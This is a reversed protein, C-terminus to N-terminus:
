RKYRRNLADLERILSGIFKTQRGPTNKMTQIGSHVAEVAEELDDNVIMLDYHEIEHVVRSAQWLRARIVEPEESGRGTLRNELEVISPPLVFLLIAEPCQQKVQYAGQVEIELLVDKGAAMQEEVWARPTGYSHNVYGAHELFADARIRRDFEEQSIFFYSEGDVEGPRPQRTTCSVSLCYSPYKEMLRRMITGKGSGSFGSVVTLSGRSSM